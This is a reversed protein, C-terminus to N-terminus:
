MEVERGEVVCKAMDERDDRSPKGDKSWVREPELFPLRLCEDDVPRGM